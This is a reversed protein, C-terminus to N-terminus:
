SPARSFGQLLHEDTQDHMVTVAMRRSDPQLLPPSAAIRPLDRPGFFRLYPKRFGLIGYPTRPECPPNTRKIIVVTM